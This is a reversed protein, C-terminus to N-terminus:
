AIPPRFISDLYLSNPLTESQTKQYQAEDRPVTLSIAVPTVNATYINSVLILINHHHHTSDGGDEHHHETDSEHRDTMLDEEDLEDFGHHHHAEGDEHSHEIQLKIKSYFLSEGPSVAGLLYLAFIVFCVMSRVFRYEAECQSFDIIKRVFSIKREKFQSTKPILYSSPIYNLFIEFPRCLTLECSKFNSRHQFSWFSVEFDLDALCEM